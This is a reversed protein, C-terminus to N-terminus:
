VARLVADISIGVLKAFSAATPVVWFPSVSDFPDDPDTENYITELCAEAFAYQALKADDKTRLMRTRVIDRYTHATAWRNHDSVIAKLDSQIDPDPACKDFLVVLKLISAGM